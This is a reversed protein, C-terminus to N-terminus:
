ARAARVFTNDALAKRVYRMLEITRHQRLLTASGLDELNVPFLYTEAGVAVTYYAYGQRYHSFHAVTDKVIQKLTLM